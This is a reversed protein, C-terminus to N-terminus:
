LYRAVVTRIDTITARTLQRRDWRPRDPACEIFEGNHTLYVGYQDALLCVGHPRMSTTVLTKGARYRFADINIYQQIQDRMRVETNVAVKAELPVWTDHMRLMYDPRGTAQGKRMSNVQELFQLNDPLDSDQLAGVLHKVFYYCVKDEPSSTDTPSLAFNDLQPVVKLWNKQDIFPINSDGFQM